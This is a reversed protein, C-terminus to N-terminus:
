GFLKTVINVIGSGAPIASVLIMGWIIGKALSIKREAESIKLLVTRLQASMEELDETLRDVRAILTAILHDGERRTPDNHRPTDGDWM